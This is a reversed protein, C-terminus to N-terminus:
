VALAKEERISYTKRMRFEEQKADNWHNVPRFYGVVRSYTDCPTGWDLNHECDPCKFYMHKTSRRIGISGNSIAIETESTRELQLEFDKGCDMCTAKIVAFQNDSMLDSLPQFKSVKQDKEM